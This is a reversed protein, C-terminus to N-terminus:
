STEENPQDGTDETTAEAKAEPATTAAPEAPPAANLGLTQEIVRIYDVLYQSDDWTWGPPDDVREVQPWLREFVDYIVEGQRMSPFPGVYARPPSAPYDWDTAIVLMKSSGVRACMLCIELPLAGDTDWILVSTFLGDAKLQALESDFRDENLLHWPAKVLAPLDDDPLLTPSIPSFMRSTHDIYWFDVRTCTNDNNDVTLYNVPHDSPAVTAPHHLTVIPALLFEFQNDHDALMDLATYLDGDSPAVMYGPQRHWDGLHRLPVDWRQAQPKGDGDRQQDRQMNWNSDFWWILEDQREDGQKFAYTDREASDDPAITELVYVTPKSDPTEPPVIVGILAEGTEDEVYHNAATAMKNLVRQALVLNPVNVRNAM